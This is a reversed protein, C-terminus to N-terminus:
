RALDWLWFHQEFRNDNLVKYAPHAHGSALRAHKRQLSAATWWAEALRRAPATASFAQDTWELHSIAARLRYLDNELALAPLAAHRAKLYELLYIAYDVDSSTHRCYSKRYGLAEFFLKQADGDPRREFAYRVGGPSRHIYWARTDEIEAMPSATTRADPYNLFLGLLRPIFKVQIHPLIRNKFETDGAARFSEDYYGFREHISKRYMGGVWSLYCTELYTHDKTAGTRDYSMVDQVYLGSMDVDTVLSNAMVWDVSPAGDLEDALVDLGEPYLTEDVGLFVLYPARALAIGRNWASQITERDKSRAYVLNLPQKALFAEVPSREDAPSGSDVLIIEAEGRRVLTQVAISSLFFPLKDAANYLSVIIAVRPTGHRRDDITEWDKAAYHRCREYAEGLYRYVASAADDRGYLVECADAVEPFRNRRLTEAVQPWQGLQDAGLLRMLRIEYTAAVLENGRKRELRALNSWVNCRFLPSTAFAEFQRVKQEVLQPADEPLRDIREFDAKLRLGKAGHWLVKADSFVRARSFLASFTRRPSRVVRKVAQKVEQPTARRVAEYAAEKMSRGSEEYRLVSENRGRAKARTLAQEYFDQMRFTPARPVGTRLASLLRGRYQAYDRLVDEIRPVGGYFSGLPLKIYPVQPLREDLYDCVGAADSVAVPCGALLAELAILNFQDYRVPLVVISNGAYIRELGAADQSPLREVAVSRTRAMADLIEGSTRGDRLIDEPGVHFAKGYLDRDIWRALEVFLDNGKRRDARGICYLNPKAKTALWEVPQRAGVIALPDVLHVECGARDQWEKMYRRSIAYRADVDRYQRLELSRDEAAVRPEPVWGREIASSVNGHMALVLAGCGVNHHALCSPVFTGFTVYDPFEVVDFTQGAVARCYANASRLNEIEGPTHTEGEVRVSPAAALAVATANAPRQAGAEEQARFYAFSVDPNDAILKRYATEGGGVTAYLDKTFLLVRM